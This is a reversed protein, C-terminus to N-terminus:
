CNTRSPTVEVTLSEHQLEVPCIINKAVEEATAEDDAEVYFPPLEHKEDISVCFDNTTHFIVFANIKFLM